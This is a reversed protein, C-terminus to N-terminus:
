ADIFGFLPGAESLMRWEKRGAIRGIRFILTGRTPKRRSVPSKWGKAGKRWRSRGVRLLLVDLGAILCRKPGHLGAFVQNRNFRGAPACGARYPLSFPAQIACGSHSAGRACAQHAFAPMFPPQAPAKLRRRRLSLCRQAAGQSTAPRPGTRLRQSFRGDPNRQCLEQALHLRYCNLRLAQTAKRGAQSSFRFM